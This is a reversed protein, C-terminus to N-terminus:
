FNLSIGLLACPMVVSDEARGHVDLGFSLLFAVRNSLPLEGTGRVMFNHGLLAEGQTSLALWYRVELSIRAARPHRGQYSALIGPSVNFNRHGTLWRASRGEDAPAALFFAGSGRLSVMMRFGSVEFLELRLQGELEHSLLYYTTYGVSVDFSDSLGLGFKAEILPFGLTVHAGFRLHGLARGGLLSTPSLQAPPDAPRPVESVPPPPPPASPAVVGADSAQSDWNPSESATQAYAGAALVTVVLAVCRM